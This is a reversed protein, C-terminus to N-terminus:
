RLNTNGNPKLRRLSDAGSTSLSSCRFDNPQLPNIDDLPVREHVARVATRPQASVMFTQHCLVQSYALWDPILNTSSLHGSDAATDRM